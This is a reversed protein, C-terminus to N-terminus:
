QKGSRTVTFPKNKNHKGYITVTYAKRNCRKGWSRATFMDAINRKGYITITFMRWVESCIYEIDAVGGVIKLTNFLFNANICVTDASIALKATPNLALERRSM